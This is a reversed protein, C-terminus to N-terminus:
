TDDRDEMGPALQGKLHGMARSLRSLVTGERIGLLEATERTSYGELMRLVVVARHDPTLGQVAERVMQDRESGAVTERGDVFAEPPPDEERDRSWFRLRTRQRRKSANLALNIAIRTLYTGVSSEGRFKGLAQYFRVFTQQGVDEADPGTGLMGVVTAAVRSEHRDVLARFASEDGAHAQRVLEQDDGNDDVM